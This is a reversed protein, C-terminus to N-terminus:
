IKKVVQLFSFGFFDNQLTVSPTGLAIFSNADTEFDQFIQTTIVSSEDGCGVEWGRFLFFFLKKLIIKTCFLLLSFPSISLSANFPLKLSHLFIASVTMTLPQFFLVPEM